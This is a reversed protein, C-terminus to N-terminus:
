LNEGRNETEKDSIKLIKFRYLRIVGLTNRIFSTGGLHSKPFDKVERKYSTIRQRRLSM